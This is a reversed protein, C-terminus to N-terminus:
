WSLLRQSSNQSDRAVPQNQSGVWLNSACGGELSKKVLTKDVSQKVSEEVQAM